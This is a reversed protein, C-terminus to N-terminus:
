QKDHWLDLSMVVLRGLVLGPLLLTVVLRLVLFLGAAALTTLPVHKGAAFIVAVTNKEALWHILFWHLVLLGAIELAFVTVRRKM